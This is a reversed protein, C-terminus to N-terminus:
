NKWPPRNQFTRPPKLPPQFSSRVDNLSNSVRMKSKVNSTPKVEKMSYSTRVDDEKGGPVPYNRPLSGSRLVEPFSAASEPKLTKKERPIAQEPQGIGKMKGKTKLTLKPTPLRDKMRRKKGSGDPSSTMGSKLWPMNRKLDKETLKVEKVADEESVLKVNETMANGELEMDEALAVPAPSRSLRDRLKGVPSQSFRQRLSKSFKVLSSAKLSRPPTDTIALASVDSNPSAELEPSDNNHSISALAPSVESKNSSLETVNHLLAQSSWIRLISSVDNHSLPLYIQLNHCFHMAVGIQPQPQYWM